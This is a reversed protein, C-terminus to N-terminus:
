EYFDIKAKFMPSSELSNMIKWPGNNLRVRGFLGEFGNSLGIQQGYFEGKATSNAYNVGYYYKKEPLNLWEMAVFIGRTSFPIDYARMDVTCYRNGWTAHAIVDVTLLDEGPMNNDDPNYIRIRFPTKHKGFRSVFFSVDTLIGEKREDNLIYLAVERLTTGGMQGFIFGKYPETSEGRWESSIVKRKRISVTELGIPNETLYFAQKNEALSIKTNLTAYGLMRITLSDQDIISKDLEFRGNEDTHMGVKSKKFYLTAYAIPEKNTTSFVKGKIQASLPATNLQLFFGLIFLTQLKM